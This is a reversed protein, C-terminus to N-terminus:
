YSPLPPLTTGYGPLAEYQAVTYSQSGSALANYTWPSTLYTSPNDCILYDQGAVHTSAHSGLKIVIGATVTVLVMAAIAVWSMARQGALLNPTSFWRSKNGILASKLLNPM